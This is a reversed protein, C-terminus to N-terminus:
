NTTAPRPQAAPAASNAPAAYTAALKGYRVQDIELPLNRRV